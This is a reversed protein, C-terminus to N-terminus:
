SSAAEIEALRAVADQLVEVLVQAGGLSLMGPVDYVAVTPAEIKGDDCENAGIYVEVQGPEPEGKDYTIVGVPLKHDVGMFTDYVAPHRGPCWWPCDAVRSDMQLQAARASLAGREDLVKHVAALFAPGDPMELPLDDRTLLGQRSGEMAAFHLPEPLRGSLYNISDDAVQPRDTAQAETTTSATDTM